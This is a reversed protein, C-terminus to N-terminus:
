LELDEGIRVRTGGDPVIMQCLLLKTTISAMRHSCLGLGSLGPSVAM